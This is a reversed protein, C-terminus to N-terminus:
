FPTFINMRRATRAGNRTIPAATIATVISRFSESINKMTAGSIEAMIKKMMRWVIGM